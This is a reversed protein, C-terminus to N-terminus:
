KCLLLLLDIIVVQLVSLLLINTNKKMILYLPIFFNIFCLINPTKKIKEIYIKKLWNNPSLCAIWEPMSVNVELVPFEYLANKLINYIEAESMKEVNIPLVPVNYKERLLVAEKKTEDSEPHTSNLVVIFPKNINKLENYARCNDHDTISICELNLSEAKTLLEVVSDTGDSYSTHLHMDIM